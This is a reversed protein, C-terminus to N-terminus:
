SPNSRPAQFLLLLLMSGAFGFCVPPLLASLIPFFVLLSSRSAFIGALLGAALGVAPLLTHSLVRTGPKEGIFFKFLRVAAIRFSLLTSATIAAILLAFQWSVANIVRSMRPTGFGSLRAWRGIVSAVLHHSRESNTLILIGDGTCPVICYHSIWGENEGGHSIMVAGSPSTEIFHGLGYSDAAARYLLGEMKSEPTYLEKVSQQTLVASSGHWAKMGAEAFRSLERVTTRLGGAAKVSMPKVPVASGDYRYGTALRLSWEDRHYFSSTNMGLPNLVSAQMYDEFSEGAVEQVLLELVTYGANSYRFTSGPESVIAGASNLSLLVAPGSPDSGPPPDEFIVRPLGATHSLLRRVTVQSSSYDSPPFDWGTLYMEVPNDLDIEGNEVLRMIGWATLSKSISGVQFITDPTVATDSNRNALGYGELFFTEGNRLLAISVGPVRYLKMLRPIWRDLAATLEMKPVKDGSNIGVRFSLVLPSFLLVFLFMVLGFYIKLSLSWPKM